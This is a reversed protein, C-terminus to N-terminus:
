HGFGHTTGLWKGQCEKNCFFYGSKNRRKRASSDNPQFVKGCTYCTLSVTNHRHKKMHCSICLLVLNELSNYDEILSKHHIHGSSHLPKGCVECLGKQKSRVMKQIDTSPSLIQQIRQRSVNAEKAIQSYSKGELREALLEQKEM